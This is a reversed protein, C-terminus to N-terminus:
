QITTNCDTDTCPKSGECMYITNNKKSYLLTPKSSNTKLARIVFRFRNNYRLSGRYKKLFNIKENKKKHKYARNIGLAICPMM